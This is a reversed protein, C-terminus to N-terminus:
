GSIIYQGTTEYLDFDKDYLEQIKKLQYSNPTYSTRNPNKNIRHASGEVRKDIGCASFATNIGATLNELRFVRTLLIQGEEDTIDEWMRATHTSFKIGRPKYNSSSSQSKEILSLFVDFAYSVSFQLRRTKLSQQFISKLTNVPTNNEWYLSYFMSLCRDVPERVFAFSYLREWQGPYLYKKAFACRRFQYEGLPMRYNNLIDNYQAPEAQLFSIPQRSRDVELYYPKLLSRTTLGASKKIHLWFLPKHTM